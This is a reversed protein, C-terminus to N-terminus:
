KPMNEFSLRHLSLTGCDRESTYDCFFTDGKVYGDYKYIGGFRTGRDVQGVLHVKGDKETTATLVFGTENFLVDYLIQKSELHYQQAPVGDKSYVSPAPVVLAQYIGKYGTSDSAWQGEWKGALPAAPDAFAQPQTANWRSDFSTCGPLAVLLLALLMVGSLLSRM